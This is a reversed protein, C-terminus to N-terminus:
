GEGPERGCHEGASRGVRVAVSGLRHGCGTEAVTALLRIAVDPNGLRCWRRRREM